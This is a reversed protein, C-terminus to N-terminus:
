IFNEYSLMKMHLTQIGFYGHNLNKDCYMQDTIILEMQKEELSKKLM